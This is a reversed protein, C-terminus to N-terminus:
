SGGVARQYAERVEARLRESDWRKSLFKHVGAENVAEALAEPDLSGTIAIRLAKPYLKRLKALFQAGDMGPMRQDSVVLGVPRAALLRFAQDVTTATLVEFQESRLAHRVIELDQESDDLVLVAPRSSAWDQSRALRRGERLMAELAPPPLPKSFHYGQIEDCSHLALLNLQAETEVGEAVVRLNLSHALSIVALTIAADDPNAVVDRIFARDIKLEDLPFRRLYALSSYGTGFDDVSLKVGTQKLRRLTREAGEPDNMLFSETIELKLLAPEVGSQRLAEGILQELNAQQFQRASLNVAVPPVKVGARQWERIQRCAERIVWEGAQLILGTEELVPVFEAPSVLGREPHAWRLLAELGCIAGSALDVKPQFHLRLEGRELAKRLAAELEMRQRARENMEPTFFQYGNRGNEKARYMAADANMSLAEAGTADDPYLTIGISASVFATHGDLEFPRALLANIKQAVLGADGPQALGLLIMGFEDGGFRAVTDDSRLCEKLRTAAQQLLKDGTAHGLTDNVMKFRDLDVFLLALPRGSRQAQALGHELRDRFLSRNPLGTLPDYQALHKLREEARKRETIDRLVVQVSPSGELSFPSAAVEVETTAGDLRVIRREAAPAPQNGRLTREIRQAALKRSEADFLDLVPRGVLEEPTRAGFLKMCMGNVLLITGSRHILLADPSLEFLRRYREESEGLARQAQRRGAIEAAQEDLARKLEGASRRLRLFASAAYTLLCASLLLLIFRYVNAQRLRREFAAGYAEALPQAQGGLAPTTIDHVLRDVERQHQALNGAHLLVLAAKERTEHPLAAEFRRFQGIRLGILEYEAHTAGHRLLLADRLLQHAADRAQPPLSRGRLLADAALPLYHSSNRLLANRSKFRELLSEKEALRHELQALAGALTGHGEAIAHEGRLLDAHHARALQLAAVIPDYTSLLGDRLKLVTEDLTSDLEQLKSLNAVARTHADPDIRAAQWGLYALLAALLLAAGVTAPRAASM